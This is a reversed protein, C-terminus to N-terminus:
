LLRFGLAYVDEDSVDKERALKKAVPYGRMSLRAFQELVPQDAGSQRLIGQEESLKNLIEVPKGHFSLGHKQQYAANTLSNTVIEYFGNGTLLGNDYRPVRLPLHFTFAVTM